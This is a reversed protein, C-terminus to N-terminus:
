ARPRRGAARAGEGASEPSRFGALRRGEAVVRDALGGRDLAAHIAFDRGFALGLEAASLVDVVPVNGALRALKERGHRAAERAEVLVGVPGERLRARVKEFGSVGQGARRALAITDVLRQALLAEVQDALDEPVRVAARFARAFLRRVLARELAAREATVWVGRGPLRRAVDPVVVGEPGLVFRVMREPPGSEGTAICRREPGERQRERGGRAM